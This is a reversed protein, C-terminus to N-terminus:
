KLKAAVLHKQKDLDGAKKKWLLIKNFISEITNKPSRIRKAVDIVEMIYEIVENYTLQDKVRILSTM